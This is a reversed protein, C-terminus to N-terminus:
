NFNVWFGRWLALISLFFVLPCMLQIKTLVKAVLGLVRIAICPDLVFLHLLQDFKPQLCDLVKTVIYHNFFFFFLNFPQSFKLQWKSRSFSKTAGLRFNQDYHWLQFSFFFPWTSWIKTVVWTLLIKPQWQNSVRTAIYCSFLSFPPYTSRIEIVV